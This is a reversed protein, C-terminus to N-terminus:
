DFLLINFKLPFILFLGFAHIVVPIFIIQLHKVGVFDFDLLFLNISLLYYYTTTLTALPMQVM